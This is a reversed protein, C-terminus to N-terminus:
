REGMAEGMKEHTGPAADEEKVHKMVEEHIGPHIAEEIKEEQDEPIRLHDELSDHLGDTDSVAHKVDKHPGDHHVHHISASGDSHLEVHTEKFGNGVHKNEEAM